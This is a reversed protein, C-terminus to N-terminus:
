NNSNSPLYQKHQSVVLGVDTLMDGGMLAQFAEPFKERWENGSLVADDFQKVTNDMNSDDNSDDNQQEQNEKQLKEWTPPIPKPSLEKILTQLEQMNSKVTAVQADAEAVSSCENSRTTRRQVVYVIV